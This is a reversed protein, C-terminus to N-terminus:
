ETDGSMKRFPAVPFYGFLPRGREAGPLIVRRREILGQRIYDDLAKQVQPRTMQYKEMIEHIHVLGDELALAVCYAPTGRIWESAKLLPDRAWPHKKGLECVAEHVQFPTCPEASLAM